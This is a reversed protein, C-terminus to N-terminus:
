GPEKLILFVPACNSPPLENISLISDIFKTKRISPVQFYVLLAAIFQGKNNRSRCLYKGQVNVNLAISQM